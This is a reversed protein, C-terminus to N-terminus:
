RFGARSSRVAGEVLVQRRMQHWPFVLSARPNAALDSAKRSERNSFFVFGHEDVGKMLVMRASPRGAADATALM